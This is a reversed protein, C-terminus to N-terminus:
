VINAGYKKFIADLQILYGFLQPLRMLQGYWPDAAYPDSELLKNLYAADLIDPLLSSGDKLIARVGARVFELYEPSFTKPFPTKKREIIEDPLIGKFARRLIGKERGNASRIKWPLNYIYEVLRHDCFPVRAELGSFLCMRDKRDTLVQMFWKYCLMFMERVRREERSDEPLYDTESVTKLYHGRVFREPDGKIVGKQLLSTRIELSPSWPFTDNYLMKDDHYWPYGGFFEDACEGSFVVGHRRKVEECALLLSSDVDAMGPLDRAYAADYLANAVSHNNLLINKHDSGIFASLIRIYKEDRGSQFSNKTFNKENGEYDISYTALTKGAAKFKESVVCCIISSDLGGSLFCVTEADPNLQREIADTVLLRTHEAAADLTETNKEAKPKWYIERRVGGRGLLLYEAPELERIGKYVGSGCPKAPGLLFIEKLSEDDLQAKCHPNKFLAKIESAFVIGGDYRSFYLPKAGM